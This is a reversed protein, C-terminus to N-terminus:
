LDKRMTKELLPLSVGCWLGATQCAAILRAAAEEEESRGYSMPLCYKHFRFEEPGYPMDISPLLNFCGKHGDIEQFM